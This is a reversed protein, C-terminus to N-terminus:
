MQALSVVLEELVDKNGEVNYTTDFGALDGGHRFVTNSPFTVNALQQKEVVVSM